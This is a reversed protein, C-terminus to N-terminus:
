SVGAADFFSGIGDRVNGGGMETGRGAGSSGGVRGWVDCLLAGNSRRSETLRKEKADDDDDVV